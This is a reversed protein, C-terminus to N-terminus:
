FRFKIIKKTLSPETATAAIVATCLSLFVLNFVSVHLMKIGCVIKMKEGIFSSTQPRLPAEPALITVCAMILFL